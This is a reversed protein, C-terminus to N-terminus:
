GECQVPDIADVTMHSQDNWMVCYRDSNYLLSGPCLSHVSGSTSFVCFVQIGILRWCHKLHQRYLYYFPFLKSLIWQMPGVMVNTRAKMHSFCINSCLWALYIRAALNHSNCQWTSLCTKCEEKTSQVPVVNYQDASSVSESSIVLSKRSVLCSDRNINPNEKVFDHIFDKRSLNFKSLSALM